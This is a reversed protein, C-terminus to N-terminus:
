REERGGFAERLEHGATGGSSIALRMAGIRRLGALAAVFLLLNVAVILWFGVTCVARAVPLTHRTLEAVLWAAFPSGIVGSLHVVIRAARPTALYTGYRMKFRPEGIRLYAYEYRVGLATGILLKLMPEFTTVWVAAAVLVMVSSQVRLGIALLAGGLATAAVELAIGALVSVTCPGSRRHLKISVRSVDGQVAVRESRPRQRAVRLFSEWQGPRYRGTDLDTEIAALRAHLDEMGRGRAM